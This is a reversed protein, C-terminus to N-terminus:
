STRLETDCPEEEGKFTRRFLEQIAEEVEEQWRRYQAMLREAEPTLSTGGGGSGGRRTRVLPIGWVSEFRRLRGWAARYSMGMEAAARALSGHLAVGDLLGLLGAGFVVGHKEVWVKCRPVPGDAAM